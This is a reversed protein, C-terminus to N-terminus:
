PGSLAAQSSGDLRPELWRWVARSDFRAARSGGLVQVPAPFGKERVARYVSNRSLGLIAQLETMSLLRLPAGPGMTWAEAGDSNAQRDRNGTPRIRASRRAM